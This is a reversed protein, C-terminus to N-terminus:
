VETGLEGPTYYTKDKPNHKHRADYMHARIISRAWGDEKFFFSSPDAKFENLLDTFFSDDDALIKLKEKKREHRARAFENYVFPSFAMLATILLAILIIRLAPWVDSFTQMAAVTKTM